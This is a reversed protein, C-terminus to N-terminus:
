KWTFVGLIIRAILSDERHANGEHHSHNRVYASSASKKDPTIYVSTDYGYLSIRAYRPCSKGGILERYQSKLKRGRRVVPFLPQISDPFVVKQACYSAFFAEIFCSRGWARDSTRGGENANDCIGERHYSTAMVAGYCAM